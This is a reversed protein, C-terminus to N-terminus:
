KLFSSFYSVFKLNDILEARGQWGSKDAELASQVQAEGVERSLVGRMKESESQLNKIQSRCYNLIM